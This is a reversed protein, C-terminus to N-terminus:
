QEAEQRQAGPQLRGVSQTQIYFLRLRVKPIGTMSEYGEEPDQFCAYCYASLARCQQERMCMCMGGCGSAAMFSHDAVVAHPASSAAGRKVPAISNFM